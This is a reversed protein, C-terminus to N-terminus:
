SSLLMLQQVEAHGHGNGKSCAWHDRLERGPLSCLEHLPDDNLVRGAKSPPLAACHISKKLKVAAIRGFLYITILYMDPSRQLLRPQKAPDPLVNM